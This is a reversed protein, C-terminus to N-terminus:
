ITLSNNENEKDKIFCTDHRFKVFITKKKVLKVYLIYVIFALLMLGLGIGIFPLVEKFTIPAGIPAKIDTIADVNATDLPMTMVGFYIPISQITDLRNTKPFVIIFNLPPIVYWGSDFSTVLYKQRIKM